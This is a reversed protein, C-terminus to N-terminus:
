FPIPIGFYGAAVKGAIKLFSMFKAKNGSSNDKLLRVMHDIANTEEASEPADPAFGLGARLVKRQEDPTAKQAADQFSQLLKGQDVRVARLTFAAVAEPQDGLIRLVIPVVAAEKVKPQLSQVLDSAANVNIETEYSYFSNGQDDKQPIKDKSVIDIISAQGFEPFSITAKVNRNLNFKVKLHNTKEDLSFDTNGLLRTRTDLTLSFATKADLFKQANDGAGEFHFFHSGNQVGTLDVVFHHRTGSTGAVQKDIKDFVMKLSGAATTEVDFELPKTAEAYNHILNSVPKLDKLKYSRNSQAQFARTNPTVNTGSRLSAVEITYNENPVIEIGPKLKLQINQPESRQNVSRPAVLDQGDAVPQGASNKMVVSLRIDNRAAIPAALYETKGHEDIEWIPNRIDISEISPNVLTKRILFAASELDKIKPEDASFNLACTFSDWSPKLSLFGGTVPPANQNSLIPLTFLYVSDSLKDVLANGSINDQNTVRLNNVHFSAVSTSVINPDETTRLTVKVTVGNSETAIGYTVEKIPSRLDIRTQAECVLGAILAFLCALLRERRKM